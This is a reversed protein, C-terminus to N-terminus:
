KWGYFATTKYELNGRFDNMRIALILMEGPGPKFNNRFTLTLDYTGNTGLRKKSAWYSIPSSTITNIRAEVDIDPFDPPSDASVYFIPVSIQEFTINTIELKDAESTNTDTKITLRLAPKSINLASISSYIGIIVAFVILAIVLQTIKKM